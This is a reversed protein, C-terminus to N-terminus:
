RAGMVLHFRHALVREARARDFGGEKSILNEYELQLFTEYVLEGDMIPDVTGMMTCFITLGGVIKQRFLMVQGRLREDVIAAQMFAREALLHERHRTLESEIVDAALTALGVLFYARKESDAPESSGHQAVFQYVKIWAPDIVQSLVSEFFLTFTDAILDQIDKFYYTTASLPVQAEKAVARHRVARIGDRIIIRLAAELIARRRQESGARAVRRGRYEMTETKDIVQKNRKEM